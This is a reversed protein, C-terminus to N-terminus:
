SHPQRCCSSWLHGALTALAWRFRVRARYLTGKGGGWGGMHHVPTGGRSADGGAAQGGPQAAVQLWEQPSVPGIVSCINISVRYVHGPHQGLLLGTGEKGIQQKDGGLDACIGSLFRGGERGKVRGSGGQGQELSAGTPLALRGAGSMQRAAAAIGRLNIIACCAVCRVWAHM